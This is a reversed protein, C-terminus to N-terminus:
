KQNEGADAVFREVQQAGPAAHAQGTEAHQRGVEVHLAIEAYAEDEVARCHASGARALFKEQTLHRMGFVAVLARGVQDRQPVCFM